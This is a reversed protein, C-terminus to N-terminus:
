LTNRRNKLNEFENKTANENKQRDFKASSQGRTASLKWILAMKLLWNEKLALAELL